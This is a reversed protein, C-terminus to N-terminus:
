RPITTLFFHSYQTLFVESYINFVKIPEVLTDVTFCGQDALFQCKEDM